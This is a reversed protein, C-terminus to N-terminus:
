SAVESGEQEDEGRQALLASVLEGAADAEGGEALRQALRVVAGGFFRFRTMGPVWSRITPVLNKAHGIPLELAVELAQEQVRVNDTNLSAIIDTIEDPFLHAIRKLYVSAPWDPFRTGDEDIEPPPAHDFVGRKRLGPFWSPSDLAGFFQRLAQGTHPITEVFEKLESGSPEEIAALRELRGYVDAYRAEFRDLVEDLVSLM